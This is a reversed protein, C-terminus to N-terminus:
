IIRLGKYGQEAIKKLISRYKPNGGQYGLPRKFKQDRGDINCNVGNVWNNALRSLLKRSARTAEACWADAAEATTEFRTKGNEHMYEILATSWEVCLEIARPYNISSGGSQPGAPALLNPFDPWLLGMNTVPGDKWKEALSVGGVGRFDVAAYSGVGADFGTAFVIIDFEYEAGRTRIGTPTIREIPDKLINVLSVNDRNYAEYYNTELPVRQVGFGHDKPILEEAIDPDDVRQRIKDAIFESFESNATEDTFIEVFNGVWIGFGPERYRQEWLELREERTVEYFGRRDPVHEFGGPTVACTAFIENYRRRIHAMDDDSLKSNNLPACWNPRRQFVVLEGVTEAITQIVQVGTAGTGIVAVRKGELSLPEHPWHFTHFCPGKFDKIGEIRPLVPKSLGGLAPILFRCAMERGDSLSLCWQNKQEDFHAAEVRVNFQIHDRM